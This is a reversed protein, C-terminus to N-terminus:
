HVAPRAHAEATHQRELRAKPRAGVAYTHPMRSETSPHGMCIGNQRPSFSRHIIGVGRVNKGVVVCLVRRRDHV